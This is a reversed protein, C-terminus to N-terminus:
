PAANSGGNQAARKLKRWLSVRDIGLIEAARTRNGQVQQLVHAIYRREMEALSLLEGSLPAQCPSSVRGQLQRPLHAPMIQPTDCLVVARELLNELERVNGPFSYNMFIELVEDSVGQVPKNYESAFKTVFHHCFLAIDDTRERLPPMRLIFVNLRYYLDQRFEGQEVQQLLNRNTAALVRVDVPISTTGGVRIINKEQLVRLLQVQTAMPTEGIEDLFLTGGDTAEFVGKKLQQAGTFAEREHGFLENRLLDEQFTGCNVALYKRDARPSMLHILKAALEKGTGTEGELLVTCDLPAVVEILEKVEQIQPSKGILKPGRTSFMSRLERLELHMLRKDKARRLMSRLEEPNYPKALYHFAGQRVAEVAREISSSGTIIIVVVGPLRKKVTRLLSLEGRGETRLDSIVVDFEEAGELLSFAQEPTACYSAEFGEQQLLPELLAQSETSDEVVLIRFLEESVESEKVFHHVCRLPPCLLAEGARHRPM